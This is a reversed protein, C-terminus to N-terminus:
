SLNPLHINESKGIEGPRKNKNVGAGTWSGSVVMIHTWPLFIILDLIQTLTPMDVM